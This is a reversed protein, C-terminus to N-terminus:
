EVCRIFTPHEWPPVVGAYFSKSKQPNTTMSMKNIVAERPEWYPRTFYEPSKGCIAFHPENKKEDLEMPQWKGNKTKQWRIPKGCTRCTGTLKM